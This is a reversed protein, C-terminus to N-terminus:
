ITLEAAYTSTKNFLFLGLALLGFGQGVGLVFLEWDPEKLYFLVDRTSSVVAFIPNIYKLMPYSEAIQLGRFMIPSTFMLFTTFYSWFQGIDKFFLYISSLILGSGLAIILVLILVIPYYLLYLNVSLGTAFFWIFYILLTIVHDILSVCVSSYFLDIKKIDTYEYLAKKASLVKMQSSAMGTYLMYPIFGSFMFLAFNEINVNMILAFVFYYLSLQFLPKMIAWLAGLQNSIFSAKFDFFAILLIRQLRVGIM